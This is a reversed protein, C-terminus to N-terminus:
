RVIVQEDQQKEGDAGQAGEAQQGNTRPNPVNAVFNAHMAHQIFGLTDPNALVWMPAGRCGYLVKTTHQHGAFEMTVDITEGAIGVDTMKTSRIKQRKRPAEADEDAADRIEQIARRFARQSESNRLRLIAEHFDFYHCQPDRRAGFRIHQGTCFKFDTDWKDIVVYVEDNVVQHAPQWGRHLPNVIKYSVLKEVEPRMFAQM